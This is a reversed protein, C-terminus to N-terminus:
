LGYRQPLDPPTLLTLASPISEIRGPLQGALEGDLQVYIPEGNVPALDMAPGRKIFINPLKAHAGVVVAGMYLGYPWTTEGPFAAIEFDSDLLTIQRAIELDGGYNRVRAALAFGTTMRDGNVKVTMQPLRAGFRSLSAIWYAGKGLRKKLDPRVRRVIDADFGAGAMLLFHRPEGQQPRFLGVAIRRPTMNQLQRAAERIGGRLRMEMALVNATGAPLIALPTDSGVMGNAVENITGDGGAAIILDAGSAVASRALATAHQARETPLEAVKHGLSRLLEAARTIRHGRARTLGGAQPNYILFANRYFTAM